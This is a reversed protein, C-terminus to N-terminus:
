IHPFYNKSFYLIALKLVISYVPAPTVKEPYMVIADSKASRM